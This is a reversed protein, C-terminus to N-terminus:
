SQSHDIPDDGKDDAAFKGAWAEEVNDPVETYEHQDANHGFGGVIVNSESESDLPDAPNLRTEGAEVRRLFEKTLELDTFSALSQARGLHQAEDATIFGVSVFARAFDIDYARCISVVTEVTLANTGNLQRNTTSADLGAHAAIARVSKAETLGLFISAATEMHDNQHMKADSDLFKAGFSCWFAPPSGAIACMQGM